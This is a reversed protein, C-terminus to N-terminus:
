PPTKHLFEPAAGIQVFNYVMLAKVKLVYLLRRGGVTTLRQLAMTYCIQGAPCVISGTASLAITLTSFFMAIRYSRCMKHSKEDHICPVLM